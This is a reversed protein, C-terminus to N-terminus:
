SAVGGKQAETEKDTYCLHHARGRRLIFLTLHLLTVVPQSMPLEQRDSTQKIIHSKSRMEIHPTLLLVSVWTEGAGHM